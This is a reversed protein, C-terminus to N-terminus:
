GFFDLPFPGWTDEVSPDGPCHGSILLGEGLGEENRIVLQGSNQNGKLFVPGPGWATGVAQLAPWGQAMELQRLCALAAEASPAMLGLTFWSCSAMAGQLQSRLHERQGSSLLPATRLARLDRLAPRSALAPM